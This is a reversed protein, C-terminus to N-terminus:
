SYEPPPAPPMCKGYPSKHSTTGSKYRLFKQWDSIRSKVIQFIHGDVNGEIDQRHHSTNGAGALAAQDPIHKGLGVFLPNDQHILRRNRCGAAGCRSCEQAKEILDALEHYGFITYVCGKEGEVALPGTRHAVSPAHDYRFQYKHIRNHGEAFGAASLAVAVLGQRVTVMSFVNNLNQLHGCLLCQLKERVVAFDALHQCCHYLHFQGIKGQPLGQGGLETALALADLPCLMQVFFSIYVNQVLRGGAEMDGVHFIDHLQQITQHLPAIGNNHDLVVRINLLLRIVQDIHSRIASGPASGPASLNDKGSGRLLHDLPSLGNRRPIQPFLYM